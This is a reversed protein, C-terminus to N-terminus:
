FRKDSAYNVNRLESFYAGVMEYNTNNLKILKPTLINDIKRFPDITTENFYGFTVDGEEM